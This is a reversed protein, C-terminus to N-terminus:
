FSIKNKNTKRDSCCIDDATIVYCSNYLGARRPGAYWTDCPYPVPNSMKFLFRRSKHSTWPCSTLYVQANLELIKIPSLSCSPRRNQRSKLSQIYFLKRCSSLRWINSRLFARDQQIIHLTYPPLVHAVEARSWRLLGTLVHWPRKRRIKLLKGM